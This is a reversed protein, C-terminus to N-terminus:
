PDRQCNKLSAVGLKKPDLDGLFEQSKSLRQALWDAAASSYTRDHQSVRVKKVVRNTPPEFVPSGPSVKKDQVSGSLSRLLDREKLIDAIKRRLM